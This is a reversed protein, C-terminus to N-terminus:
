RESFGTGTSAEGLAASWRDTVGTVRGPAGPGSLTVLLRECQGRGGEAVVLVRGDELNTASGVLGLELARSRVWWRFGVGQVQGRVWATLRVTSETAAAGGEGSVLAAAATAASM